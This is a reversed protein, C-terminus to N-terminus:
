KRNTDILRDLEELHEAQYTRPRSSLLFLDRSILFHLRCSKTLNLVPPGAFHVKSGHGGM